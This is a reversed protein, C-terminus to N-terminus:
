QEESSGACVGPTYFEIKAAKLFESDKQSYRRNCGRCIRWGMFMCDSDSPTFASNSERSHCFPCEFFDNEFAILEERRSGRDIEQTMRADLCFECLNKGHNYDFFRSPKRCIWCDPEIV